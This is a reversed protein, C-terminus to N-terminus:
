PRRESIPILFKALAENIKTQLADIYAHEHVIVHQLDATKNGSAPIVTGGHFLIVNGRFDCDAEMFEHSAMARQATLLDAGAGAKYAAIATNLAAKTDASFLKATVLYPAAM